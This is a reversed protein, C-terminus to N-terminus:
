SKSWNWVNLSFATDRIVRNFLQKFFYKQVVLWPNTATDRIRKQSIIVPIAFKECTFNEFNSRTVIKEHSFNSFKHCNYDFFNGPWGLRFKEAQLLYSRYLWNELPLLIKNRQQFHDFVATYADLM